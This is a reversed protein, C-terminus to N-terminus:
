IGENEGSDIVPGGRRSVTISASCSVSPKGKSKATIVANGADGAVFCKKTDSWSVVSPQSSEWILEKEAAPADAPDFIVRPVFGTQGPYLDYSSKEFHMANLELKKIEISCRSVVSPYSVSQVQITATGPSKAVVRGKQDVTAFEPNVSDWSVSRYTANRPYIEYGLQVSDQGARGIWLSEPNGTIDISFIQNDSVVPLDSFAVSGYYTETMRSPSKLYMQDSVVSARLYIQDAGAEKARRVAEPDVNLSYKCVNGQVLSGLVPAVGKHLVKKEEADDYSYEVYFLAVGYEETDIKIEQNEYEIESPAALVTEVPTYNNWVLSKWDSASHTADGAIRVSLRYNGAERYEYKFARCITYSYLSSPFNDEDYISEGSDILYYKGNADTKELKWFYKEDPTDVNSFYFEGYYGNENGEVGMKEDINVSYDQVWYVKEPAPYKPKAGAEEEDEGSTEAEDASVTNEEGSANESVAANESVDGEELAAEDKVAEAGAADPEQVKGSEEQLADSPVQDTVEDVFGTGEGTSVTDAFVGLDMTFVLAFSLMVSLLRKWSKKM